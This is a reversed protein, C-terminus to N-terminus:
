RLLLPSAPPGRRPARAFWGQLRRLSSGLPTTRVRVPVPEAPETPETFLLRVPDLVSDLLGNCRALVAFIAILSGSVVVQMAATPADVAMVHLLGHGAHETGSTALKGLGHLVPQLAVVGVLAAALGAARGRLRLWLVAAIAVVLALGLTHTPHEDGALDWAVALGVAAAAATTLVFRLGIGMESVASPEAASVAFQRM